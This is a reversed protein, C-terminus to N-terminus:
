RKFFRFKMSYKHRLIVVYQTTNQMFSHPTKHKLVFDCVRKARMCARYGIDITVSLDVHAIDVYYKGLDEAAIHIGSVNLIDSSELYFHM